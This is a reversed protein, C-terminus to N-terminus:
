WTTKDSAHAYTEVNYIQQRIGQTLVHWMISTALIWIVCIGSLVLWWLHPNPLRHADDDDATEYSQAFLLNRPTDEPAARFIRAYLQRRYREIENHPDHHRYKGRFDLALAQFYIMALDPSGSGANALLRDLKKFFMEGSAHSQFLAEEILLWHARGAWKANLFVEDALAAMVYQAECYLGYGFTGGLEITRLAQQELLALLSQRVDQAESLSDKEEKDTAIACPAIQREDQFRIGALPIGRADRRSSESAHEEVMRKLRLIESSFQRFQMLLISNETFFQQAGM